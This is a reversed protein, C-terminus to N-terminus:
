CRDRRAPATPKSCSPSASTSCSSRDRRRDRAREVAQPRSPRDPQRARPRGGGPRRPVPPHADEVGLESSTATAISTGGTSTSSCSTPSGPASVGADILRAIHPHTLRALITGERRFREEGARGLLAANLLKVAAQGEFRGDSREALWVSGMGGQGIPSVLTYAGFSLGALTRKRRISAPPSTSFARPADAATSPWCRRARRRGARPDEAGLVELCTDRETPTLDLLRDLHPSARQWRDASIASM